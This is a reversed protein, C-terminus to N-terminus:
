PIPEYYEVDPDLPVDEGDVQALLEYLPEPIAKPVEWDLDDAM